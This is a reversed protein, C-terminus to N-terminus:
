VIITGSVIFVVLWANEVTLKLQGLALHNENAQIVVLVINLILKARYEKM